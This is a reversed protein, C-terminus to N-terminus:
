SPTEEKTGTLDVWHSRALDPRYPAVLSGAMTFFERVQLVTMGNGQLFHSIFTVLTSSSGSLLMDIPVEPHSRVFKQMADQVVLGISTYLPKHLDSILADEHEAPFRFSSLPKHETM